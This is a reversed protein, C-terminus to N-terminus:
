KKEPRCVEDAVPKWEGDVQAERRHHLDSGKKTFVDRVPTKQGQFTREGTWTLTNGDWGPSSQMTWGGHSDIWGAEYRKQATDYSWHFKGEVPYPNDGTKKQDIKGSYWFGDLDTKIKVEARTKHATGGPSDHQQGECDWDGDFVALEKLEKPPSPPAAAALIVLALALNM